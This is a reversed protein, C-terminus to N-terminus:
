KIRSIEAALFGNETIIKESELGEFSKSLECCLYNREM